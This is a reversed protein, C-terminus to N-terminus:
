VIKLPNEKGFEHVDMPKEKSCIMRIPPLTTLAAIMDAFWETEASDARRVLEPLVEFETQPFRRKIYAIDQAM